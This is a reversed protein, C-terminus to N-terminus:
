APPTASRVETLEGYGGLPQRLVAAPGAAVVSLRDSQLHRGAVRLVDEPTLQDLTELYREFHDDALGDVAMTRLREALGQSTVLSRLFAGALDNRAEDLEAEAVVDQCLRDVAELIEDVAGAAHEHPLATTVGFPGPGRRAELGARVAYSAGRRERLSATLRQSLIGSAVLVGVFDPDTRPLGPLGLRLETQVARPLDVLCVRRGKAPPPQLDPSVPEPAAAATTEGPLMGELRRALQATVFSGVAVWVTDAPRFHARQFAVLDQRQIRELSSATGFLSRSYVGDQFVSRLLWLHALNVPQSQQQRLRGAQRRLAREVEAEPFTPFTVLDVLLELGFDLDSALLELALAGVEWDVSGLIDAGRDETEEIIRSASRHATGERLLSPVLSALGAKGSPDHQAGAPVACILYILHVMPVAHHEALVVEGGALRRRV